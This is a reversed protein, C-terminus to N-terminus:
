SIWMTTWNWLKRNRGCLEKKGQQVQLPWHWFRPPWTKTFRGHSWNHRSSPRPPSCWVWVRSNSAHQFPSISNANLEGNWWFWSLITHSSHPSTTCLNCAGCRSPSWRDCYCSQCGGGEQVNAANDMAFVSQINYCFYFINFLSCFCLFYLYFTFLNPSLSPARPCLPAPPFSSALNPTHLLTCCKNPTNLLTCCRRHVHRPLFLGRSQSVWYDTPCARCGNSAFSLHARPHGGSPPSSNWGGGGPVQAPTLTPGRWREAVGGAAPSTRTLSGPGIVAWPGAQRGATHHPGWLCPNYLLVFTPTVALLLSVRWVWFRRPPPFIHCRTFPFKCPVRCLPQQQITSSSEGEKIVFFCCYYTDHM